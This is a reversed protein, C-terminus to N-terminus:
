EGQRISSQASNIARAAARPICDFDDFRHRAIKGLRAVLPPLAAVGDMIFSFAQDRAQDDAAGPNVISDIMGDLPMAITVMLVHM